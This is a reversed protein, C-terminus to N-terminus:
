INACKATCDMTLKLLSVSGKSLTVKFTCIESDTWESPVCNRKPPKWVSGNLFLHCFLQQYMSREDIVKTVYTSGVTSNANPFV